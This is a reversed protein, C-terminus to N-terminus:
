CYPDCIRPPRRDWMYSIAPSQFAAAQPARSGATSRPFVIGTVASGSVKTGPIAEIDAPQGPPCGSPNIATPTLGGGCTPVTGTMVVTNTFLVTAAADNKVQYRYTGSDVVVYSSPSYPPVADWTPASTLAPATTGTYVWADIANSTTNIVRLAIKGAGPDAVGEEWFSLRMADPATAASRGNGWMMATYNRQRVLTVTTDKVVTSAIAQAEDDLFIRFHRNGERSGKYQIQTSVNNSPLNRFAIRYHMNNETIDVFRFIMGNTGASDPVANIFRVGAFPPLETPVLYDPVSCASAGAALCLLSNTFIRRM